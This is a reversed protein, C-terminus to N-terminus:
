GGSDKASPTQERLFLCVVLGTQGALPNTDLTVSSIGTALFPCLSVNSRCLRINISRLALLFLRLLETLAHYFLSHPTSTLERALPKRVQTPTFVM